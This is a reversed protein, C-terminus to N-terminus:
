INAVITQYIKANLRCDELATHLDDSSHEIGLHQAVTSLKFNKLEARDHRLYLGAMSMTCISPTWFWKTYDNPVSLKKLWNRLFEEDFKANYAVFHFKDKTNSKKVYQSLKAEMQRLGDKAPQFNYIEQETYGNAELARPHVDDYTLPRVEIEFEDLFHIEKEYEEAIIGGIAIVGNKHPSLGTTELDMFCLKM